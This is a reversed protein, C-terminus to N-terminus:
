KSTHTFVGDWAAGPPHQVFHAIRELYINYIGREPDRQQLAKFRKEADKWRQQRYLEVAQHYVELETRTEQGIQEKLGVPEFIAVPEAKGKVRVRDLERFLLEEVQAKTEEGVIMLVGYQKTLGELRSGLNVADGLVTYAMRFESGMNGVNMTGTNVGVGIKLQPWGRAKFADKLDEMAQIMEMGAMVANKAHSRDEIPAGWFAMIADGMYKDITGRRLHIVRTMPTLFANMLHTLEAPPLGESITTFGRVDSFLVSMERSEGGISFDKGSATMEAVLEAPIYQGFMRSIQRKGRSEIFFGFSMHFMFMTLVLTATTAIPVVVDYRKWFFLNVWVMVLFLLLTTYTTWLPSQRPLLFTTLLGLFLIALFEAMWTYGPRMKISGDLIGSAINAHVEVGPYVSQVPTTRLDMLGPATTGVLAVVGDLTNVDAKRSLVDAVSVYPFSRQPGRFPVLVSAREDVPIQYRGLGIWELGYEVQSADGGTTSNIGLTIPPEGMLARILGLALSQYLAGNYEQLLPVRRFVGDSDVLPNEFFGGSLAQQQLIALNGGYGTAQVFPINSHGLEALTMVPKPLEGSTSVGGEDQLNKFYYGLIVNRNKLTDALRNDYQLFPKLEQLHAQFTPDQKLVERGLKELVKLGSSEDAEAFVVDFGVASVRYYDFLVTILDAIVDRGWPWRGIEGLSKEDIDLIVIRPDQTGPMTLRVRFDYALNEMRELLPIKVLNLPQLAFILVILLSLVHRVIQRRLM